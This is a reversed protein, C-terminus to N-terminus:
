TFQEWALWAAGILVAQNGLQAQRIQVKKAAPLPNARVAEEFPIWWLTGLQAVGGGLILAQPNFVNVLGGLVTGLIRAGEVIVSKALDDGGEAAAVVPRLDPSEPLGRLHCYRQAIAPGSAYAELHGAQGCNCMRDGDWVAVVHGLEGASWNSGRWLQGNLILAGGIGTGVAAYLTSQLGRGEGFQLEAMAMANVDNDVVVPLGFTNEILTAIRTGAWGPLTEVAYTVIGTDVNIQGAAGVGIGVVEYRKQAAMDLITQVLSTVAHIVSRPGESAPTPTERYLACRGDRNVLAAAIKTGGIDIGVAFQTQDSTMM